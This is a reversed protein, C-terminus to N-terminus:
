LAVNCLCCKLVINQSANIPIVSHTSHFIFKNIQLELLIVVKNKPKQQCIGVDLRIHEYEHDIRLVSTRISILKDDRFVVCLLM